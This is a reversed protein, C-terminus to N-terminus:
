AKSSSDILAWAGLSEIRIRERIRERRIRRERSKAQALWSDVECNRVRGTEFVTPRRLAARPNSDWGRRKHLRNRIALLCKRRTLTSSRVTRSAALSRQRGGPLPDSSGVFKGRARCPPDELTAVGTRRGARGRLSLSLHETPSAARYRLRRDLGGLRPRPQSGRARHASIYRRPDTWPLRAAGSM